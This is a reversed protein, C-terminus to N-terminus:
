LSKILKQGEQKRQSNIKIMWLIRGKTYTHCCFGVFDLGKKKGIKKENEQMKNNVHQLLQLVTDKIVVVCAYVVFSVLVM